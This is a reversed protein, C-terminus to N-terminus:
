RWQNALAQSADAIASPWDGIKAQRFLRMSPYWPCDSRQLLWRWDPAFPLLTWVPRGMAGALHAVATDVTIVLDLNAILGATEAFDLLEDSWDILPLDAFSQTQTAAGKQLSFFCVGPSKLPTLLAPPLSRNRDNRHKKDGSWVLGIKKKATTAAAVRTRWREITKADATLAPKPVPITPLNAGFCKPLSMLPCHVDFPPLPQGRVRWDHEPFSHQLLRHLEPPCEVVVRAGLQAVAPVYRVFQLTDGFGQEAHLLITQRALPGGDWCPQVFARRLPAFRKDRWRWEYETWGTPYDGKLLLSMALNLHLVAHNPDTHLAQQCFAIVGDYDGSDYLASCLNQAAEGVSPNIALARRYSAIANALDNAHYYASGLADFAEAFDPKLTVAGRCAAIAEAFAGQKILVVGLGLHADANNPALSLALRFQTAANDFQGAAFSIMGLNNHAATSPAAKLLYQYTVLADALQGTRQQTAALIKHADVCTPQLALVSRCCDAAEADRGIDYLASALNVRVEVIHPDLAIARQYSAIGEDIRGEACLATALNSHYVAANPQVAIARQLLEIALSNRNDQAVIASLLYLAGDHRPHAQLVQGYLVEAQTTRGAKHHEIADQFLHQIDIEPM